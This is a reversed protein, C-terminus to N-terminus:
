ADFTAHFYYEGNGSVAYDLKANGNGWDSSGTTASGIDQWDAGDYLWFTVVAGNVYNGQAELHATLHVVSGCYTYTLSLTYDITVHVQNSTVTFAYVVGVCMMAIMTAIAISKKKMM